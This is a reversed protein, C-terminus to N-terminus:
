TDKHYIVKITDTTKGDRAFKEPLKRFDAIYFGPKVKTKEQGNLSVTERLDADTMISSVDKSGIFQIAEQVIDWCLAELKQLNQPTINNKKIYAELATKYDSRNLGIPNLDRSAAVL